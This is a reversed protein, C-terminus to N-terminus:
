DRETADASVESDDVKRQGPVVSPGSAANHRTYIAQIEQRAAPTETSSIVLDFEHRMRRVARRAALKQYLGPRDSSTLNM